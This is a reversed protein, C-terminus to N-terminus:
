PRQRELDRLRKNHDELSVVMGANQSILVALKVNMENISNGCWLIGAIALAGLGAWVWNIFATLRPDKMREFDEPPTIDTPQHITM